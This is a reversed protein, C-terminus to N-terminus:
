CGPFSHITHSTCLGAAEVHEKRTEETGMSHRQLQIVQVQDGEHVAPVDLRQPIERGLVERQQPVDQLFPLHTHPQEWAATRALSLEATEASASGTKEPVADARPSSRLLYYTMFCPQTEREARVSQSRSEMLVKGLDHWMWTSCSHEISGTLLSSKM